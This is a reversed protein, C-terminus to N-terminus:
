SQTCLNSFLNIHGIAPCQMVPQSSFPIPLYARSMRTFYVRGKLPTYKM